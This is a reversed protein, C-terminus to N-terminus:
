LLRPANGTEQRLPAANMEGGCLDKKEFGQRVIRMAEPPHQRALATAEPPTGGLWTAFDAEGTPLVPMREHNITAVLANPTTTMFSFVDIEVAEGDKRVPGKERDRVTM